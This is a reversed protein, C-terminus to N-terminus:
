VMNKQWEVWAKAQSLRENLTLKVSEGTTGSVFVYKVGTENLWAAQDEVASPNLNM